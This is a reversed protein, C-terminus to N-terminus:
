RLDKARLQITRRGMFENEDIVYALDLSGGRRLRHHLDGLNFGIVDFTKGDGEIRFKLHNNGVVSSHGVPQVGYSVFVPRANQPGFPAFRKLLKVFSGNIDSLRLEADISLKPILMDADLRDRAITEFRQYFDGINEAAITLGAAYKHGGFGILLDECDKLAGYLDFGDISRASGRGVGDEVSILITPRYYKEVVRSAVIGIVGTHWEKQHLVLSHTASDDYVERAQALAQQFTEEDKKKRNQNERELVAAIQRAQDVDETTLLKVAREADGMRGVANIRPAIIYVIQGTGIEKGYLGATQILTSLGLNEGENLRELGARVFIRNEDVLPVIDASTGIAVLELYRELISPDIKMGKLLGQALKYAVGVGALEKFPYPCDRRKPDIVAAAPPLQSGPEHHDSVIVDIGLSAALAIEDHGTIGCDTTIILSVGDRHARRIGSDSLGYGELQRDPIYYGVNVSLERLLLYLFSVSTIGDVDYDGFILIKEDSLVAKRLRDVARDMDRMLFPDYLQDPSATFFRQVSDRDSIGRSLLIWGIIPPVNLAEAFDRGKEIDGQSKLIWKLQM